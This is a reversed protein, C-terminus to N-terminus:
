PEIHFALLKECHQQNLTRLEPLRLLLKSLLEPDQPHNQTILFRLSHTLSEQLRDVPGVDLVGSRDASLLVVAMFLATEDAQLELAGLRGSFELMSVLLPGMGLARLEPLPYTRGDLFTVAQERPDFLSSFRVMLVQFTGAKLLMIQDQQSLQQFGPISKAFEVVETVAPTFCRSFDEWVQQTSRGPESFPSANLPCALVKVRGSMAWPCLSQGGSGRAVNSNHNASLSHTPPAESQQQGQNSSSTEPPPARYGYHNNNVLGAPKNDRAACRPCPPYGQCHTHPNLAPCPNHNCDNPEEGEEEKKGLRDRGTVFIDRYARSIARIAEESQSDEPSPSSDIDMAASKGLSSMYSQMEDLLRQKERKPIRGFRVAQVGRLRPGRLPIRLCRRWVCHLAAGDWGSTLTSAIGCHKNAALKNHNNNSHQHSFSNSTGTKGANGSGVSVIGFRQQPWEAGGGEPFQFVLQPSGGGGRNKLVGIETFPVEAPSSAQSCPSQTQYGSSPSSPGPSSSNSSSGAYLIVGGINDM